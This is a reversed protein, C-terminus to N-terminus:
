QESYAVGTAGITITSSAQANRALSLTVTGHQTTAGSLKKFIVDSGGGALSIVSIRVAGQLPYSQNNKDSPSYVGGPFLVAKREELHVGYAVGGKASITQFRAKSLVSVIKEVEMRLAEESNLGSFSSLGITAIVGIVAVTVVLEILTFGKM